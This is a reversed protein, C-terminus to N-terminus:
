VLHECVVPLSNKLVEFCLVRSNGTLANCPVADNVYGFMLRRAFFKKAPFTKSRSTISAFSQNCIVIPVSRDRFFYTSFRAVGDSLVHANAIKVKQQVRM